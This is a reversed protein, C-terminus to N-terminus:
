AAGSLESTVEMARKWPAFAGFGLESLADLMPGPSMTGVIAIDGGLEVPEVGLEALVRRVVWANKGPKWLTASRFRLSSHVHTLAERAAHLGCFRDFLQENLPERVQTGITRELEDLGAEYAEICGYREALGRYRHKVEALEPDLHDDPAHRQAVWGNNRVLRQIITGMHRNGPVKHHEVRFRPDFRVHYGAGLLKASLDYEEAYYGFTEDYGGSERFQKRRIAAGCGIFVEPLGGIERCGQNPLVIDASVVAVDAPARELCGLFRLDVPHSDDDLMVIWDCGDAAEVGINRAAAGRNSDLEILEIPVGSSLMAPVDPPQDSANDVVIVRADHPGLQGLADLTEALRENRNRTPIVYAINM